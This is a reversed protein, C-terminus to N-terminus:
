GNPITGSACGSKGAAISGNSCDVGKGGVNAVSGNTCKGLAQKLTDGLNRAIPKKYKKKM